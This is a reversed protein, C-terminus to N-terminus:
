VYRIAKFDYKQIRFGTSAQDMLRVMHIPYATLNTVRYEYTFSQGVMMEAPVIKEVLLGDHGRVGTPFSMSGVVYKIGDRVVTSHSPGFNGQVQLPQPSAAVPANGQPEGQIPAMDTRVYPSRGTYYDGRAQDYSSGRNRRENTVTQATMWESAIFAVLALCGSMLLAQKPKKTLPNLM